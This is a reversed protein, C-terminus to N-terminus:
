VPASERLNALAPHTIFAHQDDPKQPKLLVLATKSALTEAVFNGIVAM